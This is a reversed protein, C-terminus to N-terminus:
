EFEKPVRYAFAMDLAWEYGARFDDDRLSTDLTEASITEPFSRMAMGTVFGRKWQLQPDRQLSALLKRVIAIM